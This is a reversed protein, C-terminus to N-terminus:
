SGDSFRLRCTGAVSTLDDQNVAGAILFLNKSKLESIAGATSSFELPINCKRYYDLERRTSNYATTAGAAPNFTITWKKLITFRESNAVNPLMAQVGVNTFVDTAAAAAGNCQKDLILWMYVTSDATAAAGPANQMTARLQISRIVCKRGVRTSETVGQPILCLQGTAPVEPTSDVNFSLATDFFKVEGQQRGYYPRYVRARKAAPKAAASSARKRPRADEM